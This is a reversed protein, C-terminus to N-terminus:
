MFVRSQVATGRRSSELLQRMVDVMSNRSAFANQFATNNKQTNIKQLQKEQLSMKENQLGSRAGLLSNFQGMLGGGGTAAGGGAAGPTPTGAATGGQSQQQTKELDRLRVREDHEKQLATWSPALHSPNKDYTVYGVQTSTTAM